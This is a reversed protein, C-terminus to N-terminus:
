GGSMPAVLFVEEGDLLVQHDDQVDQNAVMIVVPISFKQKNIDWLEPRVPLIYTNGLYSIVESVRTDEPLDLEVRGNGLAAQLPGFARAYIKV